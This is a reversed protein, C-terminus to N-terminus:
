ELARDDNKRHRTFRVGRQELEKLVDEVTRERINLKFSILEADPQPVSGLIGHLIKRELASGSIERISENATEQIKQRLSLLATKINDLRNIATDVDAILIDLKNMRERADTLGHAQALRQHFKSFEIPLQEILNQAIPMAEMKVFNNSIGISLYVHTKLKYCKRLPAGLDSEEEFSTVLGNRELVELHKQIGPMSIDMEKSLRLLYKPEEALLQLLIRRTKSGLVDLMTDVSM